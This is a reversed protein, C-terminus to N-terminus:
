PDGGANAEKSQVLSPHFTGNQFDRSKAVEFGFLTLGNSEEAPM